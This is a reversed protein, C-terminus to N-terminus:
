VREVEDCVVDVCLVVGGIVSSCGVVCGVRVCVGVEGLSEGSEGEKMGEFWVDEGLVRHLCVCEGHVCLSDEVFFVVDCVFWVCMSVCVLLACVLVGVCWVGVCLSMMCLFDGKYGKALVLSCSRGVSGGRGVCGDGGGSSM